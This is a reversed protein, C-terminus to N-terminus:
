VHREKQVLSLFLGDLHQEGLDKTAGTYLLRGKHLIAFRSCIEEAVELIHTSLFITNGDKVYRTLYKKVIDQMIPDFNILPEDILALEPTHHFGTGVDTKAQGPSTKASYTKKDRYGSTLGWAREGIDPDESQGVFDLNDAATLLEAPDPEPIIGVRKRVGVPRFSM